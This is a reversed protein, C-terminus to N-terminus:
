SPNDNLFLELLGTPLIFKIHKIDPDFSEIMEDVAPVLVEKGNIEIAFLPNNENYIFEKIIGEMDYNVFYAKFGVLNDMFFESQESEKEDPNQSFVDLNLLISARQPTDIDAFRIIAKSNGMMKYSDIFLPVTLSDIIAFVPEEYNLEDFTDYLNIVLEGELGFLKSIKGIPSCNTMNENLKQLRKTILLLKM